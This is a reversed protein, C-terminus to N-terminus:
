KKSADKADADSAADETATAETAKKKGGFLGGLVGKSKKEAEAAKAEEYKKEAEAKAQQERAIQARDHLAYLDDSAYGASAFYTSSCGTFIAATLTLAGIIIGSKKM